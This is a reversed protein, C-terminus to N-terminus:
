GEKIGLQKKAVKLCYEQIKAATPLEQGCEAFYLLIAMVSLRYYLWKAIAIMLFLILVANVM